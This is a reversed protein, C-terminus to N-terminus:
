SKTLPPDHVLEAGQFVEDGSGLLPAERPRRPAELHRNRRHRLHDSGELLLEARGKEVAARLPEGEGGVALAVEDAAPREELLQRRHVLRHAGRGLTRL